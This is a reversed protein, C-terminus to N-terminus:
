IKESTNILEEIKFDNWFKEYINIMRTTIARFHNEVKDDWIRKELYQWYQWDEKVFSYERIEALNLREKPSASNSESRNQELSIARFNGNTNNWDRISRNCYEKRYVWESPYIHDWDWPVNTDDMHNYDGFTANIYERQALLILQKNHQIRGIFKYFYENAIPFDYNQTKVDNYYKIIKSGAGDELLGWRDKDEIKFRNEVKPQLYYERLLNPKIL